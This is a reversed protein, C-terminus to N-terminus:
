EDLDDELIFRVRKIKIESEDIGLEKYWKNKICRDHYLKAGDLSLYIGSRAIPVDDSHFLVMPRGIPAFEKEALYYLHDVGNECRLFTIVYM